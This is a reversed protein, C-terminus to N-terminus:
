ALMAAMQLVREPSMGTYLGGSTGLILGATPSFATILDTVAGTLADLGDAKASFPDPPCLLRSDINGMLCLRDGHRRGIEFIDMSAAAEICQLGDFGAAIIQPLLPNLNGDSHYFVPLGASKAVAVQRQWLPLLYQQSFAPAMYTSKQYAIDDAIIIGHAGHQIGLRIMAEVNESAAAMEDGVSAPSLAVAKMFEVFDHAGMSQQFAGNVIWFVFFGEAAVQGIAEARAVPDEADHGPPQSQLCVVDHSLRHATAIILQTETMASTKRLTGEWALLEEMFAREMVLEGTPIGGGPQHRIAKLVREVRNM